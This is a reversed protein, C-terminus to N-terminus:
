KNRLFQLYGLVIASTLPIGIDTGVSFSYPSRTIFASWLYDLVNWFVVFLAVFLGFTVYKNKM